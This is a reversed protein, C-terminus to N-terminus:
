FYDDNFGDWINAVGFFHQSLGKAEDSEGDFDPPLLHDLCSKDPTGTIFFSMTLSFGCPYSNTPSNQITGHQAYPILVVWIFFFINTTSIELIERFSFFFIGFHENQKL